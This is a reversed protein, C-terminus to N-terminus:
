NDNKLQKLVDWPSPKPASEDESATPQELRDLMAEDCPYPPKGERCDYVSIIPLALVVYEYVFPALNFHATEPAIFVVEDQEVPGGTLDDKLKVILTGGGKIPLDIPALCRDCDTNVSGSFRFDFTYTRDQKTFDISLELRGDRLPSDEFSRLFEGDIEYTFTHLGLGIGRVPLIFQQHSDM